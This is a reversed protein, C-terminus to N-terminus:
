RPNGHAKGGKGPENGAGKGHVGGGGLRGVHVVVGVQPKLVDFAFLGQVPDAGSVGNGFLLQGSIGAEFLHALVQQVDEIGVGANGVHGLAALVVVVEPAVLLVRLADPAAGRQGFVALFVRRPFDQEVDVGQALGFAHVPDPAAGVAQAGVVVAAQDIERAAAGVGGDGTFEVDGFLGEDFAAEAPGLGLAVDAPDVDVGNVDAGVEAVARHGVGAVRAHHLFPLAARRHGLRLDHVFALLGVDGDAGEVVVGGAPLAVEDIAAQGEVRVLKVQAFGVAFQGLEVQGIPRLLAHEAFPERDFKALGPFDGSGRVRGTRQQRDVEVVEHLAAAVELDHEGRGFVARQGARAGGLVVEEDVDQFVDLVADVHQGRALVAPLALRQHARGLEAGDADARHIGVLRVLVEHGDGVVQGRGRQQHALDALRRLDELLQRGEEVGLGVADFLVERGALVAGLNRVEHDRALVDREVAVVRGQKVTVASEFDRQGRVIRGADALVPQRFAAHVHDGVDAAAAFVARAPVLRRQALVAVLGVLVERRHGLVQDGALDGLRGAQADLAAAVAAQEGAVHHHHVRLQEAGHDALHRQQVHIAVVLQQGAGGPHGFVAVRVHRRVPLEQAPIRGVLVHLLVNVVRRHQEGGGGAVVAHVRAVGALHGRAHELLAM